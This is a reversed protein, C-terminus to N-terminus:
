TLNTLTSKNIKFPLKLASPEILQDFTFVTTWSEKGSNLEDVNKNIDGTGSMFEVIECLDCKIPAIKWGETNAQWYQYFAQMDFDSNDKGDVLTITHTRKTIETIECSGETESTSESTKSGLIAACAIRIVLDGSLLKADWELPDLIDTFSADCKLLAFGAYGGPRRVMGTNFGQVPTPFDNPTDVCEDCSENQMAMFPLMFLMLFKNNQGMGPRKQKSFFTTQL